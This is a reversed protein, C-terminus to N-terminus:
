SGEGGKLAALAAILLRVYLPLFLVVLGIACVVILAEIQASAFQGGRWKGDHLIVQRGLPSLPIVANLAFLLPGHLGVLYRTEELITRVQQNDNSM